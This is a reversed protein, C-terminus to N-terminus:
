GLPDRPGPLLGIGAIEAFQVRPFIVRVILKAPGPPEARHERKLRASEVLGRM